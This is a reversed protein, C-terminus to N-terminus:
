VTCPSFFVLFKLFSPNIRPKMLSPTNFFDINNSVNKYGSYRRYYIVRKLLAPANRHGLEEKWGEQESTGNLNSLRGQPM